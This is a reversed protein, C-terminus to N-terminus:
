LNKYKKKMKSLKSYNSITTGLSYLTAFLLILGLILSVLKILSDPKLVDTFFILFEWIFIIIYIPFAIINQSGIVKKCMDIKSINDSMICNKEDAESREKRFYYWTGYKLVYEWGCDTFMKVFAEEDKIESKLYDLHYIYNMPKCKEFTYINRGEHSILKWGDKHMKDLYEQEELFDVLGFFKKVVKIEM